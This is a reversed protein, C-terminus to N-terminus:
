TGHSFNNEIVKVIEVSPKKLKRVIHKPLRVAKGGRCINTVRHMSERMFGGYFRGNVVFVRVDWYKKHILKPIIREQVLMTKKIKPVREHSGLVVVGKGEGGVIPKLVFGNHFVHQRLLSDLERSNRVIFSRPTKIRTKNQILAATKFKDKVFEILGINNITRGRFKRLHKYNDHVLVSDPIIKKGESNILYKKKHMNKKVYCKHMKAMNCVKDYFYVNGKFREKKCVLACNNKGQNKIYRCIAKIPAESNYLKEYEVFGRTAGNAELFWVHGEKDFIFDLGAYIYNKM